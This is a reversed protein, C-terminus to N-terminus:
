SPRDLLSSLQNVISAVGLELTLAEIAPQYRELASEVLSKLEGRGKVRQTPERLNLTVEQRWTKKLDPMKPPISVKYGKARFTSCAKRGLCYVLFASTLFQTALEEAAQGDRRQLEGLARDGKGLMTKWDSGFFYLHDETLKVFRLYQSSQHRRRKEGEEATRELLVQLLLAMLNTYVVYYRFSLSFDDPDRGEFGQRIKRLCDERIDHIVDQHELDILTRVGTILLNTEDPEDPYKPFTIGISLGMEEPKETTESGAELIARLDWARLFTLLWEPDDARERARRLAELVGEVGGLEKCEEYDEIDFRTEGIGALSEQAIWRKNSVVLNDSVTDLAEIWVVAAGDLEINSISITEESVNPQPLQQASQGVPHIWVEHEILTGPGSPAQVFRLILRQGRYRATLLRLPRPHGGGPLIMSSKGPRFSDWDTPIAEIMPPSLLYDFAEHQPSFRLLAVEVNGLSVTQDDVKAEQGSLAVSKLAARTFNPSGSLCYAGSRTKWIILKAHLDRSRGDDASFSLKHLQVNERGPWKRAREIALESVGPQVYLHVNRCAFRDMANDFLAFNQDFYPGLITISEVLQDGIKEAVQDLIPQTLSHLLWTSRPAASIAKAEADAWEAVANSLLEAGDGLVMKEDAVRRLFSCIEAIVLGAEDLPRGEIKVTELKSFLEANRMYGAEGLNGSGLLLHARDGSLTLIFKPHFVGSKVYVPEVSYRVGAYRPGDGSSLSGMMQEYLGADMLVLTQHARLRRHVSREFFRLNGNFTAVIAYKQRRESRIEALVRLPKVM